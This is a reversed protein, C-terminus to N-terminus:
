LRTERADALIAVSLHEAPTHGGGATAAIRYTLPDVYDGRVALPPTKAQGALATPPGAPGTPGTPGTAPEPIVDPNAQWMVLEVLQNSKHINALMRHYDRKKMQITEPMQQDPIGIWDPLALIEKVERKEAEVTPIASM